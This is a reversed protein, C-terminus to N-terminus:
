FCRSHEEWIVGHARTIIFCAGFRPLLCTFAHWALAFLAVHRARIRIQARRHLFLSITKQADSVCGIGGALALRRDMADKKFVISGEPFGFRAAIVKVRAVFDRLNKTDKTAYMFPYQFYRMLSLVLAAALETKGFQRYGEFVTQIADDSKIDFLKRALERTSTDEIMARAISALKMDILRWQAANPFIGANIFTLAWAKFRELDTLAIDNVVEKHEKEFAGIRGQIKRSAIAEVRASYRTMWWVARTRVAM